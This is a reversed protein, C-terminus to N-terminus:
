KKFFALIKPVVDVAILIVVIWEIIEMRRTSARDRQDTIVDRLVQLKKDIGASFVKLFMRQICLEYIRVLYSDSAFKYSQEVREVLITSDLHLLNLKRSQPDFFDFFRKYSKHHAESEDFLNQLSKDLKADVIRLELSQVNLLEFVDIVENSTEDFVLAGTSSVFAIDDDSYTVSPNLTRDIEVKGIPELSQRLTQAIPICLDQTIQDTTLRPVLGRINFVNFQTPTPFFDPSVVAAKAQRFIDEAVRQASLLLEKSHSVEIALNPLEVVKETLECIFELSLAGIDFFTAYVQFSRLEKGIQMRVSDFVLRLPLPDRGINRNLFNYGVPDRGRQPFLDPIQAVKIEFGIDFAFLCHLYGDHISVDNNATM